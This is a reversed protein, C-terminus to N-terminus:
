AAAKRAGGSRYGKNKQGRAQGTGQGQGQRNGRGSQASPGSAGAGKSPRTGNNAFNGKGKKRGAATKVTQGDRSPKTDPLLTKQPTKQTTKQSTSQAQKNGQSAQSGSGKNKKLAEDRARDREARQASAREAQAPTQRRRGKAARAPGETQKGNGARVGRGGRGSSKGKTKEADPDAQIPTGIAPIKTGILKEIDRLQDQETDDCFSVAVGSTGARATRGIRHVYAEPVNPLEFNVVHSVAEVDIGRAAIDTAVLIKVSGDKFAALARERQGQSKNGHIAASTLDAAQLQRSVRDAGRKTRTFVIAREVESPRLLEVLKERKGPRDLHMVTQDIRDIPRSAPAVAIEAPSTLFDDALRRIQKPMTASLLVTQRQRPLLKMVRRIAPLFGLDLMQDAEDLIVTDTHDLCIAGQAQLDELRGPTAVLIDVGRSMARIQPNAKVGGVVVAVSHRIHRGYTEISEAIQAALERTPALILAGCSKPHRKPQQQAIKHLLPLTFAATKGTGTQAIGVLDEGALMTPVVDAQIPTPNSYGEASLARLLPEALGLSEFTTM